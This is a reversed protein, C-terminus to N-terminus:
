SDRHRQAMKEGLKARQEPTLVEAADALATACRKSAVDLAQMHGARVAELKARDIIPATFIEHLEKHAGGHEARLALLDKTAAAVIEKVQAQQEPTADVEALVHQVHVQLHEAMEGADMGGHRWGGGMGHAFAIASGAALVVFAAIISGVVVRKKRRGPTNETTQM